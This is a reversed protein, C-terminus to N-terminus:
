ASPENAVKRGLVGDENEAPRLPDPVRALCCGDVFIALRWEKVVVDLKIGCVLTNATADVGRAALAAAVLLEPTTGATRIAAMQESRTKAM